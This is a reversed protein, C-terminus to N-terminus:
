GMFQATPVVAKAPELKHLKGHGGPNKQGPSAVWM